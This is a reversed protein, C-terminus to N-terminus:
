DAPFRFIVEFEESRKKDLRIRAVVSAVRGGPQDLRATMFYGPKSHEANPYSEVVAPRPLGIAIKGVERGNCLISLGEIDGAPRRTVAGRSDRTLPTAAVRSV